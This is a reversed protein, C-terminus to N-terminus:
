EIMLEKWSQNSLAEKVNSLEIKVFETLLAVYCSQNRTRKSESIVDNPEVQNEEIM